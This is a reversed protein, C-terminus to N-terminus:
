WILGVVADIGFGLLLVPLHIISAIFVQRARAVSPRAVLRSAIAAFATGTGLAVVISGWGLVGRDVVAPLVSAPLLLITTLAIVWATVVGRRDVSPLMRYGGRAYDDRYMWAIAMFHPLQWVIMLAFLSLGVPEFVASLGEGRAAAAAGIMPPLAGPVAGILTNWVTLPKSPTYVFLYLAASALAILAAATGATALLVVVSVLTLVVGLLAVSRGEVRGSPIPRGATRHMRADRDAEMWQNLANAGGAAAATGVILGAVTVIQEGWVVGGAGAGTGAGTSRGLETLLYGALATITVLRTIGPKTAEILARGVVGAKRTVSGSSTGVDPTTTTSTAQSVPPINTRREGM